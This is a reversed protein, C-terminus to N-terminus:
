ANWTINEKAQKLGTMETIADAIIQAARIHTYVSNHGNAGEPDGDSGVKPMVVVKVQKRKSYDGIASQAETGNSSNTHVWIVNTNPYLTHIHTLFEIVAQKFQIKAPGQNSLNSIYSTWDNGGINVIVVDPVWSTHNWEKEVVNVSKDLGVYDYAKRLNTPHAGWVLGLGSNSVFQTEANFMRATLYGFAHLSSSNKTNRGTNPEGLSGHGSIGSAGLIQFKLQNEDAVYKEFHGDTKVSSIATVGDYPESRKLIKLKHEGPTLGSALKITQTVTEISIVEDNPLDADDVFISFYPRKGSDNASQAYFTVSLETGYFNVEFGTATYYFNVRAQQEDYDTRGIWHIYESTLDENELVNVKTGESSSSSSSSTSSSIFSSSGSSIISSNGCSVLATVTILSMTLLRTKSTLKSM